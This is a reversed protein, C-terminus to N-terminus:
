PQTASDAEAHRSFLATMRQGTVLPTDVLLFTQTRPEGVGFTRVSIEGRHWNLLVHGVRIDGSHDIVLRLRDILTWAVDRLDPDGPPHGVERFRIKSDPM